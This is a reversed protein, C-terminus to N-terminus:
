DIRVHARLLKEFIDDEHFSDVDEHSMNSGRRTRGNNSRSHSRRGPYQRLVKHERVFVIDRHYKVPYHFGIFRM